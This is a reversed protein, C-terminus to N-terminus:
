GRRCVEDPIRPQNACADAPGRSPQFELSGAPPGARAKLKPIVPVELSSPHTASHYVTNLGVLMVPAVGENNGM